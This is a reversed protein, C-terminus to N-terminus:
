SQMIRVVGKDADVEVMDGDKLVRTANKTGIVCPINLERSVIAAHCTIGGEDTVIAAAKNIAVIMEPRTMTAVLIDGKAMNAVQHIKHVIKVRGTVKGLSATQGKLAKTGITQKKEVIEYLRRAEQGTLLSYGEASHFCACFKRRDSLEQRDINKELLMATLEPQVTYDMEDPGLGLRMGFEHRFLQQYYNSILVYKKREDQMYAFVEAIVILDRIPQSLHLQNLLTRKQSVMDSFRTELAQIEAEPDVNKNLLMKLEEVFFVEDLYEVKAYNNHLWHYQRVHQQLKDYFGSFNRALEEPVAKPQLLAQQLEPQKRVDALLAYRAKLEQNIFSENVPALLTVFYENAKDAPLEAKLAPELFRDAHMSFPDQVGVALSCEDMFAQFFQEYRKLLAQDSLTSLVAPTISSFIHEFTRLKGQWTALMKELYRDDRAVREILSIRMKVMDEDNWYWHVFDKEVFILTMSFSEGYSKLWPELMMRGIPFVTHLVGHLGKYTWTQNALDYKKVIEEATYM